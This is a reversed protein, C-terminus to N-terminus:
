PPTRQSVATERVLGGGALRKWVDSRWAQFDNNQIVIGGSGLGEMSAGKQQAPIPRGQGLPQALSRGKEEQQGVGPSQPGSLRGGPHALDAAGQHWGQRGGLGFPPHVAGQHHAPAIGGQPAMEGQLHLGQGLRQAGDIGGEEHGGEQFPAAGRHIPHVTQRALGDMFRGKGPIAEEGVGGAVEPLPHLLLAAPADGSPLHVEQTPPLQLPRGSPLGPALGQALPQSGERAVPQHHHVGLPRVVQGEEAGQHTLQRGGM